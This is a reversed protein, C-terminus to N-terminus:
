DDERLKSWGPAYYRGVRQAGRDDRMWEDSFPNYESRVLHDGRGEWGRV